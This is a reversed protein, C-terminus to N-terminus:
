ENGRKWEEGDENDTDTPRKYRKILGEIHHTLGYGAKLSEIAREALTIATDHDVAGRVILECYPKMDPQGFPAGSEHEISIYWWFDHEEQWAKCTIGDITLTMENTM